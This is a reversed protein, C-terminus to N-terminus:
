RPVLLDKGQFGLNGLEALLAFWWSRGRGRARALSGGGLALRVVRCPHRSARSLSKHVGALGLSHISLLEPPAFVVVAKDTVLGM